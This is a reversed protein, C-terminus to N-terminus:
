LSSVDWCFMDAMHHIVYLETTSSGLNGLKITIIEVVEAPNISLSHSRGMHNRAQGSSADHSRM